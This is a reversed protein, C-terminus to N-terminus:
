AAHVQFSVFIVLSDVGVDYRSHQSIYKEKKKKLLDFPTEGITTLDGLQLDTGGKKLKAHSRLFFFSTYYGDLSLLVLVFTLM